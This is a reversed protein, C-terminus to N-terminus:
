IKKVEELEKIIEDINNILKDIYNKYENNNDINAMIDTFNIGKHNKHERICQMCINEKCENCYKTYKDNHKNCIINRDEYNIILHNNNHTSKCLPCITKKCTLCYNMENKYTKNKNNIKCIECIIKSEVIKQLENFEKISINEIKHNNKCNYMSIRYDEIKILINKKCELCIVEKAEKINDNIITKMEDYVIINM